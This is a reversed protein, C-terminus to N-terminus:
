YLIKDAAAAATPNSSLCLTLIPKAAEHRRNLRLHNRGQHSITSIAVGFKTLNIKILLAHLFHVKFIETNIIMHFVHFHVLLQSM